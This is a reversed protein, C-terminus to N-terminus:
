TGYTQKNWFIEFNFTLRKNIIFVCLFRQVKLFTLCLKRVCIYCSFRGYQKDFDFIQVFLSLLLCIGVKNMIELLRKNLPNPTSNKRSTISWEDGSYQVKEITSPPPLTLQYLIDEKKKLTITGIDILFDLVKNM